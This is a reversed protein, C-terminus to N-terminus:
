RIINRFEKNFNRYYFTRLFFNRCRATFHQQNQLITDIATKIQQVDTNKEIAVVTNDEEMFENLNQRLVIAPTGFMYSKALVGSQTTRIYANWIVASSAYAKNIEADTMPRGKHIEVRASNRLAEPIDFDSKTAILFQKGDHWDEKLATQVYLLFEKFSHDAAVTGIYSIYMREHVANEACEDDFMLPLYYANKNVYLPNNVYYGVAKNSPLIIVDSWKVTLASVHDIIWLKAMYGYSFGAKRYHRLPALPEHFIYVIKAGFKKLKHILRLNHLSPFPFVALSCDPPSLTSDIINLEPPLFNRFEQHVYFVPNYGIERCQKYSAVLHSVHGPHFNLSVILAQM